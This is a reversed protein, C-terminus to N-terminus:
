SLAYYYLSFIQPPDIKQTQKKTNKETQTKEKYKKYVELAKVQNEISLTSIFYTFNNLLELADYGKFKNQKILKLFYDLHTVDQSLALVGTLMLITKNDISTKLPKLVEEATEPSLQIALNTAKQM